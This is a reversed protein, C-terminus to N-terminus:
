VRPPEFPPSPPRTVLLSVAFDLGARTVPPPAFADVATVISLPLPMAFGYDLAHSNAAGPCCMSGPMGGGTGHCHAGGPVSSARHASIPCCAKACAAACAEGRAWLSLPASMLAVLALMAFIRRM